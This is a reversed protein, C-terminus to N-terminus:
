ELRPHIAAIRQMTPDMLDALANAWEHWNTVDTTAMGGSANRVHASYARINQAVQWASSEEVLVKRRGDEEAKV